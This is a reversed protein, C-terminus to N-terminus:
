ALLGRTLELAAGIAQDMDWYRYRGLRGGVILRRSEAYRMYLSHLRNNREDNVPYCPEDGGPYERTVITHATNAPYFYKHEIARTYPVDADTYNMTAAGLYDPREYREHEWRLGRYELRGLMYGFLRDLAGTYIVHRAKGNWYTARAAYDQGLEVTSGRLLEAIFATYGRQPMAQYEDSFYEDCWNDRVPIRKIISAPLSKPDRGWQKRTYGDIFMDYLTEGVQSVAWDRLNDGHPPTTPLSAGTQQLTMRNIPFSYVAGKYYAKVHHSYQRWEACEQVYDWIRRSNTHFIHGGYEQVLIGDREATHCNGGVHERQEVVLVRKRARTLERACVAGFLGAGVILYDM